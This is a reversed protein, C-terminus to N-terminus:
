MRLKNEREGELREKVGGDGGCAIQSTLSYEGLKSKRLEREERFTM